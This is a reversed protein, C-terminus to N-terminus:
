TISEFDYDAHNSVYWPSNTVCIGAIPGIDSDRALEATENWNLIHAFFEGSEPEVVNRYTKVMCPNGDVITPRMSSWVFTARRHALAVSESSDSIIEALDAIGRYDDETCVMGSHAYRMDIHGEYPQWELQERQALKKITTEGGIMVMPVYSREQERKAIPFYVRAYRGFGNEREMIEVLEIDGPCRMHLEAIRTKIPKPLIGAYINRDIKFGAQLLIDRLLSQRYLFERWSVVKETQISRLLDEKM